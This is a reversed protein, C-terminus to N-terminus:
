LIIFNFLLYFTSNHDLKLCLRWTVTAWNSASDGLLQSGTQPVTELHSHGLKFCHRWTDAAWNSSNDGVSHLRSQPVIKLHRHCLKFYQSVVPQWFRTLGDIASEGVQLSNNSPDTSGEMQYLRVSKSRKQLVITVWSASRFAGGLM